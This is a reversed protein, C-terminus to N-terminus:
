AGGCDDKSIIILIRNYLARLIDGIEICWQIEAIKAWIEVAEANPEEVKVELYWAKLHDVSIRSLGLAKRSRM